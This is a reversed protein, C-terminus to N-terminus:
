RLSRPHFHVIGRGEHASRPPAKWAHGYVLEFTATAAVGPGAALGARLRRAFGKGSLGRPRDARASTQGSRRLDELLAGADPYRIHLMEMEMVPAALGAAVLLDGLDHMDAFEHVRAAGAADRLERLSDPGLVSFILLGEPALVRSLERIVSGPDAAWHLAMNCWALDVSADALPMRALDACVALVPARLPAFLGRRKRGQRLMALAFDLAIIPAGRYRRRLEGAQRSAGSGADLILRPAIRLYALRELMRAAVEDELRSADACTRAAREFRRRAARPDISASREKL